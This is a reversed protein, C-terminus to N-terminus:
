AIRLNSVVEVDGFCCGSGSVESFVNLEVIGIVV